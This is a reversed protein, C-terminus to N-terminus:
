RWRGAFIRLALSLRRVISMRGVIAKIGAEVEQGAQLTMRFRKRGELLLERRTRRTLQGSM